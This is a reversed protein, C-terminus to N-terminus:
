FTCINKQHRYVIRKYYNESRKDLNQKTLKFIDYACQVRDFYHQEVFKPTNVDIKLMYMNMENILFLWLDYHLDSKAIEKFDNKM